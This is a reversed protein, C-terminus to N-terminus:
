CFLFQPLPSVLPAARPLLHRPKKILYFTSPVQCFTNEDMSIWQSPADM